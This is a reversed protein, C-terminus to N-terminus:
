CCVTSDLTLAGVPPVMTSRPEWSYVLSFLYRALEEKIIRLLVPYKIM